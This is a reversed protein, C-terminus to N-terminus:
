GAGRPRWMARTRRTPVPRGSGCKATCSPSGATIATSRHQSPYHESELFSGQLDTGTAAHEWEAETPLRAGSWRAFADAEFYSVHCVPEDPEVPTTRELFVALWQGEQEVWYLRRRGNKIMCHRGVSRCGFNPVATATTM